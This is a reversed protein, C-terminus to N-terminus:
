IIGYIIKYHLVDTTGNNILIPTVSVIYAEKNNGLWTTLGTDGQVDAVKVSKAQLM